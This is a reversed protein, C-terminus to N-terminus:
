YISIRSGRYTPLLDLGHARGETVKKILDLLGGRDLRARLTIVVTGMKRYM